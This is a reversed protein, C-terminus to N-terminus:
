EGDNQSRNQPRMYFYSRPAKRMTNSPASRATGLAGEYPRKFQANFEATNSIYRCVDRQMGLEDTYSPTTDDVIFDSVEVGSSLSATGALDFDNFKIVPLREQFLEPTFPPPPTHTCLYRSNLIFSPCSCVWRNQDAYYKEDRKVIATDDIAAACKRWLHVFDKYVSPRERRAQVQLHLYIRSRVLGAFIELRMTTRSIPITPDSSPRGCLSAIEWRSGANGFEPRYWNSWFYRFLKPQDIFKCFILMENVSSAHIEEYTEYVLAQPAHAEDCVVKPLLPHRLLHRKIMARLTRADEASCKGYYARLSHWLCLHHNYAPNSRKFAISAATGEAFDKDTHVVNPKLGANRLAVFWETLRSGRKGVEQIGRTDLLLYSLPLSVLDYETLVCYLEYRSPTIFALAVGPEQLEEILRYGDQEGILLQASRFDNLADREWAKRTISVWVNYVQQRTIAHLDTKEFQPDDAMQMLNQYIQRPPFPKGMPAEIHSNHKYIIIVSENAKSFSIHLEGHCEFFEKADSQPDRETKREISRSCTLNFREGDPREYTRRFHFFYGTCDFMDNRLVLAARRQVEQDGDKHVRRWPSIM